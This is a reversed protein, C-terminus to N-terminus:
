KHGGLGAEAHRSRPTPFPRKQALARPHQVLVFGLGIDAPLHRLLETFAELGSASAGISVVAADADHVQKRNQLKVPALRHPFLLNRSKGHTVPL